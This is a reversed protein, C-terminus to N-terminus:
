SGRWRSREIRLSDCNLPVPIIGSEQAINGADRCQRRQLRRRAQAPEHEDYAQLFMNRSIAHNLMKQIMPDRRSGVERRDVKLGVELVPEAVPFAIKRDRFPDCAARQRQWKMGVHGLGADLMNGVMEPDRDRRRGASSRKGSTSSLPNGTGNKERVCHPACRQVADPVPTV